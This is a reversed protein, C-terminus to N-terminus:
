RAMRWKLERYMHWLRFRLRWLVVRGIARRGSFRTGCPVCTYTKWWRPKVGNVDFDDRYTWIRHCEPCRHPKDYNWMRTPM